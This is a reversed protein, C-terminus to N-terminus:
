VPFSIFYSDSYFYLIKLRLRSNVRRNAIESFLYGFSKVFYLGNIKGKIGIKQAKLALNLAIKKLFILSAMFLKVKQQLFFMKITKFGLTRRM